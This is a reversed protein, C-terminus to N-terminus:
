FKIEMVAPVVMIVMVVGLLGLMPFLLKTSAQEGLLKARNKREEFAEQEEKELSSILGEAGKRMNQSLLLSLKRYSRHDTCTGLREIASVESRGGEIDRCVRGIAEYGCREKETKEKGKLYEDYIRKFAGKVSVGAGVYLSLMSVIEPYDRTLEEKKEKEKKKEEEKGGLVIAIGAGILLATIEEATYSYERKWLVSKGGIKEPLTVTKEPASPDEMKSVAENLYYQFGEETNADPRVIKIPFSYVETRGKLTMEASVEVIEGEAVKNRNISGDSRVSGIPSFSYSVDVAGDCCTEILDLGTSVHEADPNDKLIKTDIEESAKQFIEAAADDSYDMGPIEVTVERSDDETELLFTEKENGEEAEPREVVTEATKVVSFWEYIGYGSSVAGAVILLLLYKKEIRIGKKKGFLLVALAAAFLFPAIM